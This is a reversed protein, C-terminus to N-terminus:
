HLVGEGRETAESRRLHSSIIYENSTSYVTFRNNLPSIWDYIDQYYCCLNGFKQIGPQKNVRQVDNYVVSMM